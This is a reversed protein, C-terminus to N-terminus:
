GHRAVGPYHGEEMLLGLEGYLTMDKLTDVGSEFHEGPAGEGRISWYRMAKDLLRVGIGRQATLALNGLGYAANKDVFLQFRAQAQTALHLLITRMTALKADPLDPLTVRLTLIMERHAHPNPQGIGLGNPTGAQIRRTATDPAAQPIEKSWLENTM